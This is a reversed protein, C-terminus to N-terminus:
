AGFVPTNVQGTVRIPPLDLNALKRNSPLDISVGVHYPGKGGTDGHVTISSMDEVHHGNVHALFLGGNESGVYLDTGYLTGLFKCGNSTGGASWYPRVDIKSMYIHSYEDAYMPYANPGMVHARFATITTSNFSRNGDKTVFDLGIGGDPINQAKCNDLLNQESYGGGADDRGGTRGFNELVFGRRAHAVTINKFVNDMSNILHLGTDANTGLELSGGEIVLSRKSGGGKVGEFRIAHDGGNNNCWLRVGNPRWGKWANAPITFHPINLDENRTEIFRDRDDSLLAALQEGDRVVAM